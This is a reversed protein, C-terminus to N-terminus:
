VSIIWAWCVIAIIGSTHIPFTVKVGKFNDLARELETYTCYGHVRLLTFLTSLVGFIWAIVTIFNEM